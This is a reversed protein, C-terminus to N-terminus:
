QGYGKVLGPHNTAPLDSPTYWQGWNSAMSANRSVTLAATYVEEGDQVIIEQPYESMRFTREVTRTNGEVDVFRYEYIPM